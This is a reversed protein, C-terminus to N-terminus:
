LKFGAGAELATAFKDVQKITFLEFLRGYILPEGTEHHYEKLPYRNWKVRQYKPDSM